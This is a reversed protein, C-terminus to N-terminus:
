KPEKPVILTMRIPKPIMVNPMAELNRGRQVPMPEMRSLNTVLCPMRDPSMIRVLDVGAGQEWVHQVRGGTIKMVMPPKIYGPLTQGGGPGSGQGFVFVNGLLAAGLLTLYILVKM